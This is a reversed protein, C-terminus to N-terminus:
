TAIYYRTPIELLENIDFESLGEYFNNWAADDQGFDAVIALVRGYYMYIGMRRESKDTVFQQVLYNGELKKDQRMGEEKEKPFFYLSFTPRDQQSYM